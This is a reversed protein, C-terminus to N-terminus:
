SISVDRNGLVRLNQAAFFDYPSCFISYDYRYPCTLTRFHGLYILQYADHLVPLAFTRAGCSAAQATPIRGPFREAPNWRM